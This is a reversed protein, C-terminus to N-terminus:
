LFFSFSVPCSYLVLREDQLQIGKDRFEASLGLVAETENQITLMSRLSDM